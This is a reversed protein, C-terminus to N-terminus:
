AEEIKGDEFSGDEIEGIKGEGRRLGRSGRRSGVGLTPIDQRRDLTRSFEKRRFASSRAPFELDERPSKPAAACSSGASDSPIRDGARGGWRQSAFSM